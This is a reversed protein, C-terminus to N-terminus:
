QDAIAEVQVLLRVRNAVLPLGFSMGFDSRQLEAEFDGGCWPRKLIPHTGCSFRQARLALPRNIGRLTIEGRVEQLRDGDFVFREAVFFAEPQAESDFLDAQRLRSDLVPLGTSVIKTPVRLSVSGHRASADLTAYGELPGFRGRLTATGFHMVEFHVFSHTPDFRYGVPQATATAAAAVSLALVIRRKM